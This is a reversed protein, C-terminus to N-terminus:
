NIVEWGTFQNLLERVETVPEFSKIGGRKYVRYKVRFTKDPIDIIRIPMYQTEM